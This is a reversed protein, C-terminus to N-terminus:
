AAFPRERLHWAVRTAMAMISLQPNVGLSTPMISGDAIFLEDVDWVRGHADVVSHEPATGMRCTGLPHQSTCELRRANVRSMDLARYHDADMGDSGLLPLFVEKAGAAFFTDACIQLARRAHQRDRGSMRYTVFPERGFGRRVVGGAADHLNAGFMALHPVDLV